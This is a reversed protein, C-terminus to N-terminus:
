NRNGMRDIRIERRDTEILKSNGRGKWNEYGARDTSIVLYSKSVSPKFDMTLISVMLSQPSTNLISELDVQKLKDDRNWKTTVKRSVDDDKIRRCGKNDWAFQTRTSSVGTSFV